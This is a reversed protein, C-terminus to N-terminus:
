VKVQGMWLLALVLAVVVYALYSQLNGNQVVRIKHALKVTFGVTPRYLLTEISYSTDVAHRIRRPYYPYHSHVDVERRTGVLRQLIVLVPNSFSTGSYQMSPQLLAGCTWTEELTIRSRGLWQRLVLGSIGLVSALVIWAAGPFLGADTSGVVPLLFFATQPLQAHFLLACVDELLRLVLGPFVGLAVCGVALLAMAAQMNLPVEKAHAAKESRPMALFATGFHKVLGGAAFVGALGLAAIALSGILKVGYGPATLSLQFLAQFTAWESIFGNLPPLAAMALGGILFLAATVPMRRILGGLDNINRTHTAYLVSGAAMFLLGKFFAHNLVHYLAAALALAALQPYAYAQFMLAAGIGVFIVGLNEASSYALFRKMDNDALGYIIGLVASVLGALLVLLGWWAPGGGFVDFVMRLLGYVATKLMVASMLASIHSPAAPHARPLWIHLPVIGAKAGFGVLLMVFMLNRLWDPIAGAITRFDSFAFTGTFLYLALFSLTIFLTAVHTMVVYIFGATRVDEREHEFMVLGFSVLSMLEWALLFAFANDVSVVLAMSLLFLNLGGGLLSVNKKDYYESVYGTAYISVVAALLSIVLLFFAALSDLRLSLNLGGAIQWLSLSLTSKKWLLLLAVAVGCVGGCFSFGHSLWNAARPQGASVFVTLTGCVYLGLMVAFLWVIGQEGLM